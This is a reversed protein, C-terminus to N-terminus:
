QDFQMVRDVHDRIQQETLQGNTLIKTLIVNIFSSFLKEFESEDMSAFSISKADLRVDGKLSVTSTYFGALITADKRFRTKNPQVPQGKYEMKPVTEVWIDYALGILAFFKKHFEYNRVRTAKAHVLSGTRIKRVQEASEDDYPMLAGSALKILTVDM